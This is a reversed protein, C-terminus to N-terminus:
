LVVCVVMVVVVVVVVVVERLLAWRPWRQCSLVRYSPCQRLIHEPTKKGIGCPCEDKDTLNKLCHLQSWRKSHSTSLRSITPQRRRKLLDIGNPLSLSLCVSVFLFVSIFVFVSLAPCVPLSYKSVLFYFISIFFLKIISVLIHFCM